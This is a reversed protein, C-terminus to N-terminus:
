GHLVRMIDADPVGGSREIVPQPLNCNVLTSPIGRRPGEDVVVDPRGDLESLIAEVDEPTSQEHRNASTVLIPGTERLIQRLTEHDPIRVACEVRDHLWSPAAEIRIGMAVSLPGPAFATLLRRAEDTVVVGLSPIDAIEAVMIPLNRTRPRQKMAFLRDIATDHEPHVALGYVTDTPLLAVGGEVLCQRVSKVLDWDAEFTM